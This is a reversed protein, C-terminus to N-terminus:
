MNEPDFPKQNKLIKYCVVLLKRMTAAIAVLKPKGADLLHLYYSYFPENKHRILNLTIMFLKHRVIGCGKKQLYSKRKIKKGSTNVTPNMGFYAVIKKANAFRNVDGIYAELSIAMDQSIAKISTLLSQQENVTQYLEAIQKKLAKMAQQDAIIRKVLIQVIVGAGEGKKYAISNETLKKVKHIFPKSLQWQRAGYRVQRLEEESAQAIAEATPYHNLLALMQQSKLVPVGRELEPAVKTLELRLKNTTMTLQKKFSYIQRDIDKILDFAPPRSFSPKPKKEAIFCAIDKADIPDTKARRLDAEAYKRTQIPNIVTTSATAVKQVLFHYLNKWYEGTAELGIRFTKTGFKNQLQTLMDLLRQYGAFNEQIVFTKVVCKKHENVIAVDHKLKSIDIGVFLTPYIM